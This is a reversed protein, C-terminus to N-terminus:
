NKDTRFPSAPLEEKNYLNPDVPSDAWAYRVYMPNSIEESSVIVKDGEIKANAWVFKKDAAAIAFERPEEGDNTVLGSGVNTFSIVIKNGDVTASQFLPGSSVINEGYVMKEALLAMRQGVDHKDWPHIDNWEGIDITVVMGTNPLSLAKFQSERLLAWNSEVPLYTYDQYNPLQV